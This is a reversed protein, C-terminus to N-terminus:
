KTPFFTLGLQANLNYPRSRVPSISTYISSAFYNFSFAGFIGWNNNLRYGSELMVPLIFVQKKFTYNVVSSYPATTEVLAENTGSYKTSHSLRFGTSIGLFGSFIWKNKQITPGIMLPFSIYNSNNIYSIIGTKSTVINTTTGKNGNGNGNNGHGNGNGNTSVTSDRYLTYSYAGKEGTGMFVFGTRLSIARLWQFTIYAGGTYIEKPKEAVNRLHILQENNSYLIRYSSGIGLFLSLYCREFLHHTLINKKLSSPREEKKLVIQKSVVVYQIGQNLFISDLVVKLSQNTVHITVENELPLEDNIYSFKINKHYSLTDLIKHIPVNQLSLTIKINLVSVNNL